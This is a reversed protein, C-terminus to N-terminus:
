AARQVREDCNGEVAADLMSYLSTQGPAHTDKKKTKPKSGGDVMVLRDRLDVVEGEPEAAPVEVKKNRVAAVKKMRDAIVIGAVVISGMKSQLVTASVSVAADYSVDAVVKFVSTVASNDM